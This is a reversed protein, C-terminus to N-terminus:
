LKYLDKKIVSLFLTLRFDIPEVVAMRFLIVM